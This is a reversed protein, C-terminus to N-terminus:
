RSALFLNRGIMWVWELPNSIGVWYFNLFIGPFGFATWRFDQFAWPSSKRRLSNKKRRKIASLLCIKKKAIFYNSIRSFLPLSYIPDLFPPFPPTPPPPNRVVQFRPWFCKKKRSRNTVRNGKRGFRRCIEQGNRERPLRAHPPIKEVAFVAGSDFKRKKKKWQRKSTHRLPLVVAM